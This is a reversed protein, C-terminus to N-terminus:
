RTVEYEFRTAGQTRGGSVPVVDVGREGIRASFERFFAPADPIDSMNLGRAALDGIRTDRPVVFAYLRSKGLPEKVRFAFRDDPGPVTIIQGSEIAALAHGPSQVASYKNPFIQYVAGSSMDVNFLFLQGSIGSKVHFHLAAGLHVTEGEDIGAEIEPSIGIQQALHEIEAVESSNAPTTQAQGTTESSGTGDRQEYFMAEPVHAQIWRQFHAVSAYVGVTNKQACGPGWSVVGIQVKKHGDLDISLPGGSDGRCSDYRGELDGACVAAEDIVQDLNENRLTELIRKCEIRDVLPIKAQLLRKSSHGHNPGETAQPSTLGFGAVLATKESKLVIDEARNGLLPQAPSAAKQSLHVLGVDNHTEPQTSYKEHLYYNDAFIRRGAKTNDLNTTGELVEIGTIHMNAVCHGATLVWQPAIVTGGCNFAGEEARITLHVFSPWNAHTAATGGVVRGVAEDDQEIPESSEVKTDQDPSPQDVQPLAYLKPAAAQPPQAFSIVSSLLIATGAVPLCLAGFVKM